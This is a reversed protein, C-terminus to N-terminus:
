FVSVQFDTDPVWLSNSTKARAATQLSSLQRNELIGSIQTKMLSLNSTTSFITNFAIHTPATANPARGM